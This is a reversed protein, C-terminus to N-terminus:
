ASHPQHRETNLWDFAVWRNFLESGRAAAQCFTRRACSRVRAMARRATNDAELYRIMLSRLHVVLRLRGMCRGKEADMDAFLASNRYVFRVVVVPYEGYQELLLSVIDFQFIKVVARLNSPSWVVMRYSPLEPWCFLFLTRSLKDIGPSEM